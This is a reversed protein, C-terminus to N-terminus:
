LTKTFTWFDVFFLNGNLNKDNYESEAHKLAYLCGFIYKPKLQGKFAGKGAYQNQYVFM